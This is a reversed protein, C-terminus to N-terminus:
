PSVPIWHEFGHNVPHDPAEDDLVQRVQRAAALSMERRVTDVASGLHPTFLTSPHQRLATPVDPPRGPLAWDEMEFVDSAYGALRGDDLAAVVAKEDVVSGRGINVLYTGPRLRRLARDDILHRTDGTLPALLVIVDSTALLASLETHRAGLEAEEAAPLRLPDAYLLRAPQFPNIRRAVAKGLEGMGVIGVRARYLSSGYLAPRWGAFGGSRVQRDGQSVHRLVGITLGIALEATPATLLDPLSTLWVGRRSCADVDVNDYGKLTASIVRLRPCRALFDEDVHDAMCTILADASGARALVEDRPWIQEGETPVRATCFESLYDVVEPHVWHTVVVEPLGGARSTIM